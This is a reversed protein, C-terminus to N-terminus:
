GSTWSHALEKVDIHGEPMPADNCCPCYETRAELAYEPFRFHFSGGERIIQNNICRRLKEEVVARRSQDVVELTEVSKKERSFAAIGLCHGTMRDVAVLVDYPGYM